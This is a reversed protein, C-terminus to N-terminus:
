TSTSVYPNYDVQSALPPGTRESLSPSKITHFALSSMGTIKNGM